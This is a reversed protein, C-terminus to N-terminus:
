CMVVIICKLKGEKKNIKKKVSLTYKAGIEVEDRHNTTTGLAACVNILGLNVLIEALLQILRLKGPQM